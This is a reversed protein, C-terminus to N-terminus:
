TSLINAVVISYILISVFRCHYRLSLLIHKLTANKGPFGVFYLLFGALALEGHTNFDMKIPEAVGRTSHHSCPDFPHPPNFRIKQHGSPWKKQNKM